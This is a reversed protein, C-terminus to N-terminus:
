MGSSRVIRDTAATFVEFCLIRSTSTRKKDTNKMVSVQDLLVATQNQFPQKQKAILHLKM